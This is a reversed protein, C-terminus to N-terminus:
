APGGASARDDDWMTSPDTSSAGSARTATFIVYLLSAARLFVFFWLSNVVTQAEWFGHFRGFVLVFVGIDAACYCIWVRRPIPLLVFFPVMWLDYTPSYIKNSLLFLATM